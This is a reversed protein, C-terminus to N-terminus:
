PKSQRVTVKGYCGIAVSLLGIGAVLSILPFAIYPLLSGGGLFSHALEYAPIDLIVWIAIAISVPGSTEGNLARGCHPCIFTARLKWWSIANKCVPCHAACGETRFKM